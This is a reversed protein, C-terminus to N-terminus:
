RQVLRPGPRRPAQIQRPQGPRGAAQAGGAMRDRASRSVGSIGAATGPLWGPGRGGARAPRRVAADRSGFDHGSRDRLTPCAEILAAREALERPLDRNARVQAGAHSSLVSRGGLGAVYAPGDAGFPRVLLTLKLGEGYPVLQVVPEARGEIGAQAVEAIEARIPLTPNDRRVMAIVQDRAAKPVTLGHTGLIAQVALHAKTVEVVRYRAPTEAELFVTPDSSSHSLAIRYGANTEGVVLEVPYAVLELPQSRRRLDFVTPHGVLAAITRPADFEFYEENYWGTKLHKRIGRLARRDHETLYDIKPDSAHLRKLAVPRGDSWGDRGKPSQEVVEIQRSEPDLFWALRRTKRPAKDADPKTTGGGLLANLSELAREWPARTQILEPSRSGRHGARDRRAM